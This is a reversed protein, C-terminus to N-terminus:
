KNKRRFSLAVKIEMSRENIRYETALSQNPLMKLTLDGVLLKTNVKM